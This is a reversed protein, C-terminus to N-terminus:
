QLHFNAKLAPVATVLEHAVMAGYIAEGKPGLHTHDFKPSPAPEVAQTDAEAPGIKNLYAVSEANLDLVPIKEEQAVKRTAEAWPGLSDDIKGDKFSRRSLATVLVANAGLTKVDQVFHHLNAPFETALDTSRGPKGPQDNHGFQILIWTRMREEATLKGLYDLIQQWSGEARYSLTSRGGKGENICATEATVLACFGDGYGSGTQMTSDGVLVIRTTKGHSKELMQDLTPWRLKGPVSKTVTEKSAEPPVTGPAATGPTNQATAVAAFAAFAFAALFRFKFM